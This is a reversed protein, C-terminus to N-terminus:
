NQPRRPPDSKRIAQLVREVQDSHAELSGETWIVFDSATMKKEIPWQAAIRQHIQSENWGRALLRQIQTNGSCASCIVFDFQSEAHTEFLLPIVVVCELLNRAALVEIQALWAQRIRPHLISELIQREASNSFVRAALEDRRLSGDPGTVSPGFARQIEALAPQGPAVLERALIDTDIVPLGRQTLFHATTSKGMGIGGTLGITKM